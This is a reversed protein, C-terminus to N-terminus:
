FEAGVWGFRACWSEVSTPEDSEGDDVRRLSRQASQSFEEEERRWRQTSQTEAHLAARRTALKLNGDEGKLKM